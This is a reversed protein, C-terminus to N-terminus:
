YLRTSKFTPRILSAAAGLWGKHADSSLCDKTFEVLNSAVRFIGDYRTRSVWIAYEEDNTDTPDWAVIDGNESSGFPVLKEILDPSGDPEYIFIKEKLGTELVWKLDDSRKELSDPHEMPVYIIFFNMFLGYGFTRAFVKYSNPLRFDQQEEWATIRADDPAHHIEGQVEIFSFPNKEM